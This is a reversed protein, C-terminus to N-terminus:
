LHATVVEVTYGDAGNPHHDILRLPNDAAVRAPVSRAEDGPVHVITMGGYTYRVGSSPNLPTHTKNRAYRSQDHM